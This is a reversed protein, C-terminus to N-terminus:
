QFAFILILLPVAIVCVLYLATRPECTSQIVYENNWESDNPKLPAPLELVVKENSWFDLPLSCAETSNVCADLAYSVNYVRKELQFYARMYNTQVENESNFVFFYYGTAPIIYTLTNHLGAKNLSEESESANCLRSPTLPLNLVLGACNLLAEESSSFSSWFESNSMDLPDTENIVAHHDAFGDPVLDIEEIGADAEADDDILESALKLHRRSRIKEESTSTHDLSGEKKQHVVNAIIEHLKSTPLATERRTRNQPNQQGSAPVSGHKKDYNELMQKLVMRLKEGDEDGGLQKNLRRLVKQGRPGLQQIKHLVEEFIEASTPQGGTDNSVSTQIKTDIHLYPTISSSVNKINQGRTLQNSTASINQIAASSRTAPTAEASSESNEWMSTTSSRAQNHRIKHEDDTVKTSIGASKESSRKPKNTTVRLKSKPPPIVRVGAHILNHAVKHLDEEPEYHHDADDSHNILEHQAIPGPKKHIIVGPRLRRMVSPSNAPSDEDDDEGKSQAVRAPTAQPLSLPSTTVAAPVGQEAAERLLQEEEEESSDDGIYACEHLHKHGRIVILSAGPWRACTSVTISSGKLLYYAWYEKFDDDLELHRVMSLRVPQARIQPLEPMLFANFTRNVRVLQRQCWTTSVRADIVRMDSAAAPYLQDGYVRYRMYLPAAVLAAPLAVALLLLRLARLPVKLRSAAPRCSPRRTAGVASGAELSLLRQLQEPRATVQGNPLNQVSDGDLVWHKTGTDPLHIVHCPVCSRLRDGCRVSSVCERRTAAAKRRLSAVLDAM